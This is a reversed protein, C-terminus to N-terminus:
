RDLFEEVNSSDVQQYQSVYYRGEKLEKRVQQEGKFVEYALKAIQLAQDEKTRKYVTGQMEGMKLQKWHMMWGMSVSFLRDRLLNM